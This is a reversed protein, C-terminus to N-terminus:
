PLPHRQFFRWMLENADIRLTSPGLVDLSPSRGPWTHGGGEITYLVVESGANGPAHISRRIPLGDDVGDHILTEFPVDPCGNAQVWNRITDPVSLFNAQTVSRRGRGGAYPAYDDATGHFHLIPVPRGPACTPAGMPGAVAAIAAIRHSLEDALRYSMMAGNSVGTAFVRRRDVPAASELDDLVAALFGVDDIRRTQATGCCGGANWSRAHPTRGTGNPFVALFGERDALESLGTFRIVFGADTGSGHLVLLVPWPKAPDFTPPVHLHYARRGGAHDIARLFDGPTLPDHM